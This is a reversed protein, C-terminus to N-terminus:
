FEDKKDMIGIVPETSSSNEQKSKKTKKSENKKIANELVPKETTSKESENNNKVESTNSLVPLNINQSKVGLALIVSFVITLLFKIM